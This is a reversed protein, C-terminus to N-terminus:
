QNVPSVQRYFKSKADVVRLENEDNGGAFSTPALYYKWYRTDLIRDVPPLVQAPVGGRAPVGVAPVGGGRATCAPLYPCCAPPVCWVPICEQETLKWNNKLPHM